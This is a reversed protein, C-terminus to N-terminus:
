DDKQIFRVGLPTHPRRAVKAEMGYQPGILNGCKACVFIPNDAADGATKFIPSGVRPVRDQHQLQDGNPCGTELRVRASLLRIAAM